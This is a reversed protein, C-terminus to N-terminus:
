YSKTHDSLVKGEKQMVRLAGLERAEARVASRRRVWEVFPLPTWCLLMDAGQEWVSDQTFQEYAKKGAEGMKGNHKHVLASTLAFQAFELHGSVKVLIRSIAASYVVVVFIRAGLEKGNGVPGANDILTYLIHGGLGLINLRNLAELGFDMWCFARSIALGKQYGVADAIRNAQRSLWGPKKEKNLDHGNHQRIFRLIQQRWQDVKQQAAMRNRSIWDIVNQVHNQHRHTVTEQGDYRQVIKEEFNDIKRALRVRVPERTLLM